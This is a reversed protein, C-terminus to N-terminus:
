ETAAFVPVVERVPVSVKVPPCVKVTVCAPTAATTGVPQEIEGMVGDTVVPAVAVVNVADQLLPEGLEYAQVTSPLATAPEM